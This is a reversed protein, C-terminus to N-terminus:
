RARRCLVAAAGAFVERVAEPHLDRGGLGYVHSRVRAGSGGLAFAVDACLPPAGGPSDARDLVIVEPVDQSCRPSARGGPVAPVLPDEAAGVREGEDRLEDVVDKITGATSGLAVIM